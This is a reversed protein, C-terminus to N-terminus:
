ERGDSPHSCNITMKHRAPPLGLQVLVRVLMRLLACAASVIHSAAGIIAITIDDAYIDLSRSFYETSNFLEDFSTLM